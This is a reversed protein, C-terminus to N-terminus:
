RERRRKSAARYHGHDRGSRERSERERSRSSPRTSGQEVDATAERRASSSSSLPRRKFHYDEETSVHDHGSSGRRASASSTRRARKAEDRHGDSGSKHIAPVEKLGNRPAADSSTSAKRKKGEGPEPFSIRSFVSAAKQKWDAEAAAAATVAKSPQEHDAVKRKCPRPRRPPSHRTPERERVLGHRDMSSSKESRDRDARDPVPTSRNLAPLTASGVICFQTLVIISLFFCVHKPKMSSADNICSSERRPERGRSHERERVNLRDMGRQHRIDAKRSEIEKRNMGPPRQGMGMGLESLDRPAAPMMYSQASFPDQPFMGGGFPVDFPGPPYGMFPMAGFPTVYSADVVLSMGSGWYPNYGSAVLPMGFSEAGLDQYGRWQMDAVTAPVQAKKNKKKAQEGVPQMEHLDETVIPASEPSRQGKSLSEPTAESVNPTIAAKKDLSILENNATKIESAVEADKMHSSQDMTPHNAEDKSAASLSPSPVKPLAPHASEMDQVHVLSGANETSSTASELIRNITERLTKNPLLDDALINTAGCICMLKSMIYDRICKDCFSRFCCKSTLVADKMVEKCLQCRLEPPLDGVPRTTPLGEIEKEFAAENPKLVAVAGSPLSYSGDPTAMLMSKPIGTPPKVRKIDYNPDGNTPCHQIFHGPVKCRHCVYGAPPTKRELMGRGFSCGGMGRGGFGRGHGRGSGYSEQTSHNWDLAPTDILAKIKSEEDVNNATPVEVVPISIQSHNQEPIAYLDNGFEDWEYEEHYRNTASDGALMSSSPPLEEIKDEVVNPKDRQTVIPKRPRGPVRRVLVSTSKPIMAGEDVYEEDTQANSIMLDFDTGKGFLKTEFIREKLNAVSIFQGEIPISDYDKASKFKYYVAM